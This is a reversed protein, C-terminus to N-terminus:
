NTFPDTVTVKQADADSVGTYLVATGNENRILGGSFLVDQLDPRKTDSPLMNCREAIIKMDECEMKDIDLYFRMSYYHRDGNDDFKAIHGLIGLKGNKLVHAENVGGWEDDIFQNRLLPADQIKESTIEELSKVQFFGIKGRGGKEGQPRTFVGIHNDKLEVMRIDKMGDPGILFKELNNIDKGRYFVTRWYLRDPNDNKTYTEVGGFILEKHITTIFPDQLKYSINEIPIWKEQSQKFFRVESQESDRPEVRGAIIQQNGSLFPATINYVDNRGVGDFVIKEPEWPQKSNKFEILLKDIVYNM